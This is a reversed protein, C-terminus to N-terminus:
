TLPMIVIIIIIFTIFIRTRARVAGYRTGSGLLRRRCYRIKDLVCQPLLHDHPDVARRPPLPLSINGYIGLTSSQSIIKYQMCVREIHRDVRSQDWLHREVYGKAHRGNGRCTRQLLYETTPVTSTIPLKNQMNFM